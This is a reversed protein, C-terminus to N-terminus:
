LKILDLFYQKSWIDLVKPYHIFREVDKKAIEVNLNKIRNILLEIFEAKSINEKRWDSSDKARSFFHQLNLHVEKRIYWEM